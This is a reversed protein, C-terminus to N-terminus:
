NESAPPNKVLFTSSIFSLILGSILIGTLTGTAQKFPAYFEKLAIIQVDIESQLKNEKKMFDETQSILQSLTEHDLFQFYLYTFVCVIVGTIVSIGLGVKMIEKLTIFGGQENKKDKIALVLPIVLLALSILGSFIGFQSFQSHTFYVLLKIAIVIFSALLSYKLIPKM